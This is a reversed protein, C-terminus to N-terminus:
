GGAKRLLRRLRLAVDPAGHLDMSGDPRLHLEASRPGRWLAPDAYRDTRHHLGQNRSGVYSRGPEPEPDKADFPGDVLTDLAAWLRDFGPRREAEVLNHGTFVITGLGLRVAGECLAAVAEPQEVPEGGVVTLGEIRHAHLAEHLRALLEDIETDRGGAADFLEPNCCGPCRITCGQVWVVFRRHPGESQSCPVM